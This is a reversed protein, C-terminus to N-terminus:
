RAESAVDFAVTLREATDFPTTGHFLTSPFLALHGARPEIVRLPPLDLGLDPPPRGVELWGRQGEGRAEEPVVLYLASSVIGDPHIHSKHHGGDGTMRISWSGTIPWPADRHRLLPHAPDVPPLASRYRNLAKRAAEHLEALVPDARQFLAGRTQTGGRLTQGIQMTSVAHMERLTAAAKDLLGSRAAFPLLEVLGAQEHLWQSRPDGILRWVIGRLSWADINDPQAALATDLLGEAADYDGQRVRHRAEHVHRAPTDLALQAFIADARGNDGAAGAYVAELLAFGPEEPFTARAQAAVEAADAERDMGALARCWSVRIAPDAPVQEAAAAFHSTFDSEGMALLLQAKLQLADTYHPFGATVEGVLALAGEADGAVELAQAKALLIMPNGPDVDLAKDFRQLASREGRELAVNARGLLAKPRNPEITLARDYWKAAAAGHGMGREANARTSCYHAHKAGKKEVRVLVDLAEANRGAASLAIAQDVAHDFQRPDLTFAKRFHDAAEAPRGQMMLTSGAAHWLGPADPHAALGSRLTALAGMADGAQAAASARDYWDQPSLGIM